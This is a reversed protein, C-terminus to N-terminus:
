HFNGAIYSRIRVIIALVTLVFGALLASHPISKPIGASVSVQGAAALMTVVKYSQAIMFVCCALLALAIVTNLILRWRGKFARSFLDMNLYDGNYTIAALAIFVGWITIFVMIEEAWFFAYGFLYRGIVNAINIAVGTLMLTGLIWEPVTVFVFNAPSPVGRVDPKIPDPM